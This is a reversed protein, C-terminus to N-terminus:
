RIKRRKVAPVCVLALGSLTLIAIIISTTDGTNPSFNYSKLFLKIERVVNSEGVLFLAEFMTGGSIRWGDATKTFEVTTEWANLKYARDGNEDPYEYNYGLVVNMTASSGDVSLDGCDLLLPRPYIEGNNGFMYVNGSSGIRFMEFGEEMYSFKMLSLVNGSFKEALFTDVNSLSTIKRGFFASEKEPDIECYEAGISMPYKNGALSEKYQETKASWGFDIVNNEEIKLDSYDFPSIAKINVTTSTVSKYNLGEYIAFGERVLREAEEHSFTSQEAKVGFMSILIIMIITIAIILKRLINKM